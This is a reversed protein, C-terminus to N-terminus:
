SLSLIGGGSRSQPDVQYGCPDPYHGGRIKAPLKYCSSHLLTGQVGLKDQSVAIAMPATITALTAATMNTLDTGLLLPAKM